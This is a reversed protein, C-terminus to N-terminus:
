NATITETEKEPASSKLLEDLDRYAQKRMERAEWAMVRVLEGRGSSKSMEPRIPHPLRLPVEVKVENSTATARINFSTPSHLARAGLEEKLEGAHVLPISPLAAPVYTGQWTRVFRKKGANILEKLRNTKYSRAGLQFRQTNGPQFRQPFFKSLWLEGAQQMVFRLLENFRRRNMWAPKNRQIRVQFPVVM